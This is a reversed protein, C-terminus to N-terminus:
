RFLAKVKGLSAPAVGMTSNNVVVRLMLNKYPDASTRVDVDAVM